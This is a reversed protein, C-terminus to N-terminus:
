LTRECVHFLKNRVIGVVIFNADEDESHLIKPKRHDTEERKLDFLAKDLERLWAVGAEVKKENGSIEVENRKKLTSNKQLSPLYTTGPGMVINDGILIYFVWRLALVM